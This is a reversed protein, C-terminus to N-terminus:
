SMFSVTVRVGSARVRPRRLRQEVGVFLTQWQLGWCPQAKASDGVSGEFSFFM